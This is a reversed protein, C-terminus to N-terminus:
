YLSSLAHALQRSSLSGSHWTNDGEMAPVGKGKVTRAVIVRPRGCGPASLAHDLAALDHGDCDVAELGMAEIKSALPEVDIITATAGDAQAGNCDIVTHVTDLQHRGIFMLAEWVQGSQMEGDGLVAHVHVERGTARAALAMGAAMSLGMGLSGTSVDVAGTTTRCPHGLLPGGAEMITDLDESAILGLDALVAYLTICAHGKSLVFRTDPLTPAHGYFISVLIEVCSLQGGLHHPRGHSLRLTQERIERAKDRQRTLDWSVAPSAGTSTM